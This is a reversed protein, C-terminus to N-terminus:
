KSEIFDYAGIGQVLLYKAKSNTSNEVCHIVGASITHREGPSLIVTNNPNKSHVKIEGKLCFCNDIVHTHHHWPSMTNKLIEIVRVATDNTELIIEEIRIKPSM